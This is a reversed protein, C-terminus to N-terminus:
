SQKVLGLNQLATIVDDVTHAAGTALVARAIATVGYFGLNKGSGAINANGKITLGDSLISDIGPIHLPYNTGSSTDSYLASSNSEGEIGVVRCLTSTGSLSVGVRQTFDPYPRTMYIGGIIQWGKCSVAQLGCGYTANAAQNNSDGICNVFTCYQNFYTADGLTGDGYFGSQYNDQAECNEFYNNYGLINFGHNSGATSGCYFAKCNIFHGNLGGVYFGNLAATEAICDDFIYDTCSPAPMYFANGLAGRVRVRKLHMVRTDSSSTVAFGNNKVDNIFIDEFVGNPDFKNTANQWPTNVNIGNGNSQNASNGEIRLKKVGYQVTGTGTISIAALLNASNAVYIQTAAGQGEISIYSSSIVIAASITFKGESLVVKGGSAPLAAIAALIQVDDATGDCQYDANFPDKANFAKVTITAASQTTQVTETNNKIINGTGTGNLIPSGQWVATGSDRIPFSNNKVISNFPPYSTMDIGGHAYSTNNLPKFTNNEVITDYCNDIILGVGHHGSTANNGINYFTNGLIKAGNTGAHVQAYYNQYQRLGACGDFTNGIIKTDQGASCEVALGGTVFQNGIISQLGSQDWIHCPNNTDRGNDQFTNGYIMNEDAHDLNLAYGAGGNASIGDKFLSYVIQNHHGYSGTGDQYFKIGAEWPQAIWLHDFKCWVAGRAYIGGGASSQNAGNCNLYFDRMILGNTYQPSGSLGFDFAYINSSNAIKLQSNWGDGFIVVGGPSGGGVTLSSSIIYTGFPIYVSGGAIKAATIALQIATTDDTSNDGKAGYSKVNFTSKFNGVKMKKTTPTGSEDVIPLWDNISPITKEVLASIISDAM